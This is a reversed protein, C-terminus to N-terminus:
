FGEEICGAPRWKADEGMSKAIEMSEHFLKQALPGGAHAPCCQM